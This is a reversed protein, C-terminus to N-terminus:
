NTQYRNRVKLLNPVTESPLLVVNTFYPVVNTFYLVLTCCHM